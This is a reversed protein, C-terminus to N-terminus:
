RLADTIAALVRELDAEAPVGVRVRDPAGFQVTPRVLIRHEAM